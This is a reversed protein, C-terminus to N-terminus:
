SPEYTVTDTSSYDGQALSSLNEFSITFHAFYGAEGTASNFSKTADDTVPTSDVPNLTTSQQLVPLLEQLFQFQLARTGTTSATRLGLNNPSLLAQCLVSHSM